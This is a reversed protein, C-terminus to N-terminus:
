QGDGGAASDSIVMPPYVAEDAQPEIWSRPMLPDRASEGREDRRGAAYGSLYAREHNERSGLFRGIRLLVAAMMCLVVLVCFALFALYITQEPTM